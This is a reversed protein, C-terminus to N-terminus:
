TDHKKTWERRHRALYVQGAAVALLVVGASIMMWWRGTAIGVGGAFILALVVIVIGVQIGQWPM